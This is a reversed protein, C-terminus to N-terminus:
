QWRFGTYFGVQKNATDVFPSIHFHSNKGLTENRVWIRREIGFRNFITLNGVAQLREWRFQWGGGKTLDIYSKQYLTNSHLYEPQGHYYYFKPDAIYAGNLCRFNFVVVVPTYIAGDTTLGAYGIIVIRPKKDQNPFLAFSKGLSLEMRRISNEVDTARGLFEINRTHGFMYLDYTQRGKQDQTFEVEGTLTIKGMKVGQAHSPTSVFFLLFISVGLQKLM